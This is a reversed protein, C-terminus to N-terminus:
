GLYDWMVEATGTTVSASVNTGKVTIDAAEAKKLTLPGSAAGAIAVDAGGRQGVFIRYFRADTSGTVVNIIVKAGGAATLKLRGMRM